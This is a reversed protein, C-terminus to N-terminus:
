PLVEASDSNTAGTNETAPINNAEPPLGNESSPVQINEALEAPAEGISIDPFLEMEELTAANVIEAVRVHDMIEIMNKYPVKKDLLLTVATKEPFRNKLTILIEQLVAWDLKGDHVELRRIRGHNADRVDLFEPYVIIQLQLDLKESTSANANLPPLSLELVTMRSFVATILLFPILIVMLNLFATINLEVTEDLVKSRKRKM